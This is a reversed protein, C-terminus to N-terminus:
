PTVDAEVNETSGDAEAAFAVADLKDALKRAHNEARHMRQILGELKGEFNRKALFTDTRERQTTM